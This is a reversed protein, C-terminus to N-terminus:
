SWNFSSLMKQNENYNNRCTEDRSDLQIIQVYDILDFYEEKKIKFVSKVWYHM